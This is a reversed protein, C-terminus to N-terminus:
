VAEGVLEEAERVRLRGSMLAPLLADRLRALAESEREAAWARRLLAEADALVPAGPDIVPVTLGTLAEAPFRAVTTGHAMGEVRNRAERTFLHAWVPLRLHRWEPAFDIISVDQSFLAEPVDAPLLMPWGLIENRWTQETNAVLLDGGRAVHRPKYEGTYHKWGARKFGGFAAANALNVMPM